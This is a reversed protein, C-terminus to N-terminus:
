DSLRIRGIRILEHAIRQRCIGRQQAGTNLNSNPVTPAANAM